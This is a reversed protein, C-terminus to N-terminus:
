HTLHLVDKMTFVGKKGMLFEAAQIAGQAFGTRNHAIHTLVIDDIASTFYLEHTGAVDPLRMAEIPLESPQHNKNLTWSQLQPMQALVTEALTIATGSPKDLKSTHHIETISTKYHAANHAMLQALKSAAEFFLNVGISFNTSALLASNGELVKGKLAEYNEYWGTTGVVIPLQHKICWMINGMAESPATFEIAVDASKIIDDSLSERDEQTDIKALIQHQANLAATEIAKGMKGYGLLIIKM